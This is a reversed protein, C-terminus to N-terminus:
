KHIQNNLLMPHAEEKFPTSNRFFDKKLWRLFRLCKLTVAGGANKMIETRCFYQASRELLRSTPGPPRKYSNPNSFCSECCVDDTNVSRTGQSLFFIENLPVNNQCFRYNNHELQSLVGKRCIIGRLHNAPHLAHCCYGRVM